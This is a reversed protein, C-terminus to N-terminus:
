YAHSHRLVALWWCLGAGVAGILVAYNSALDSPGDIADGLMVTSTHCTLVLYTFLLALDLPHAALSRTIRGTSM